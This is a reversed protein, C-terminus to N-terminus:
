LTLLGSTRKMTLSNSFLMISIRYFSNGMKPVGNRVHHCLLTHRFQISHPVVWSKSTFGYRPLQMHLQGQHWKLWETLRALQLKKRKIVLSGSAMEWLYVNIPSLVNLEYCKRCFFWVVYGCASPPGCFGKKPMGIVQIKRLLNRPRLRMMSFTRSSTLLSRLMEMQLTNLSVLRAYANIQSHLNHFIYGLEETFSCIYSRPCLARATLV